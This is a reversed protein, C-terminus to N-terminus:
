HQKPNMQAGFRPPAESFVNNPQGYSVGSKMEGEIAGVVTQGPRVWNGKPHDMVVRAGILIMHVSAQLGM